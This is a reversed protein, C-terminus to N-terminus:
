KVAAPTPTTLPQPAREQEERGAREFESIV